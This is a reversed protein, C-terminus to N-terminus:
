LAPLAPKLVMIVLAAVPALMAVLGWAEWRRFQADYTPWTADVSEANRATDLIQRQLPAIRMGFVAGSISFLVIPWLIWGTGLIPLKAIIAAAIGTVLIGIVGPNTFLRDSRIIGDFAAAILRFDRSKHAHRAWFLGTTINGLFAVVSVVHLMKLVLYSM